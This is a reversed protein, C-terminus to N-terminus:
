HVCMGLVGANNVFIVGLDASPESPPVLLAGVLVDSGRPELVLGRRLGDHNQSLDRAQDAVSGGSLTPADDLVVRTPEGETHSDIACIQM